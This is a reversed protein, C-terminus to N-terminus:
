RAVVVGTRPPVELGRSQLEWRAIRIWTLWHIYVGQNPANGQLRQDLYKFINVLHNDTIESLPIIRGDGTQWCPDKPFWRPYSVKAHDKRTAFMDSFNVKVM